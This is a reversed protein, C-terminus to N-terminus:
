SVPPPPCSGAAVTHTDMRDLAGVERRVAVEDMCYGLCHLPEVLLDM